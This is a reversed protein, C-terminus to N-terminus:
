KITNETWQKSESRIWEETVQLVKETNTLSALLERKKEINLEKKQKLADVLAANEKQLEEVIASLRRIEEAKAKKMVDALFKEPTWENSSEHTNNKNNHLNSNSNSSINTRNDQQETQQQNKVADDLQKLKEDMKTKELFEQLISVANQPATQNFSEIIQNLASLFQKKETEDSWDASDSLVQEANKLVLAISRQVAIEAAQKLLSIRSVQWRESM